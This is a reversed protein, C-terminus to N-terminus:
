LVTLADFLEQPLGGKLIWATAGAAEAEAILSDDAYASFILVKANVGHDRIARLAHIGNMGPLQLYMLIIDPSLVRAAEVSSPGDSAEGIVQFGKRDLVRRLMSRLEDEDDVVLLRRGNM